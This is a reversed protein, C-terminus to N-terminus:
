EDFPNEWTKKEVVEVFEWGDATKVQLQPSTKVGYRDCQVLFRVGLIPQDDM